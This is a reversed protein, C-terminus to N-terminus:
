RRPKESDCLSEMVYNGVIASTCSESDSLTLEIECPTMRGTQSYERWYTLAETPLSCIRYPAITEQLVGDDLIRWLTGTVCQLVFLIPNRIKFKEATSIDSQTVRLKFTEM